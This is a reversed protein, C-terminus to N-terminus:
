KDGRIRLMQESTKKPFVVNEVSTPTAQVTATILVATEIIPIPTPENESPIPFFIEGCYGFMCGDEDPTPIPVPTAEPTRLWPPEPRGINTPTPRWTPTAMPSVPSNQAFGEFTDVAFSVVIAIILALIIRKSM